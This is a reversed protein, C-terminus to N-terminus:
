FPAEDDTVVKSLYANCEEKSASGACQECFDDTAETCATNQCYYCLCCLCLGGRDRREWQMM